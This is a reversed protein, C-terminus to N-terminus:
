TAMTIAPSPAPMTKRVENSITRLIARGRTCTPLWASAKRPKASISGSGSVPGRSSTESARLKLVMASSIARNNALRVVNIAPIEWSRRVGSVRMRSAKSSSGSLTSLANTCRKSRLRSAMSTRMPSAKRKAWPVRSATWGTATMAKTCSIRPVYSWGISNFDDM